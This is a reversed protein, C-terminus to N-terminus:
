KIAAVKFQQKPYKLRYREAVAEADLESNFRLMSPYVAGWRGDSGRGFILYM